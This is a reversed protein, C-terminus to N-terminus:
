RDWRCVCDMAAVLISRVKQLQGYGGVGRGMAGPWHWHVLKRNLQLLECWKEVSMRVLGQCRIDM